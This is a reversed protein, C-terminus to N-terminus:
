TCCTHEHSVCHPPSNLGRLTPIRITVKYSLAGLHEMQGSYFRGVRLSGPGPRLCAAVQRGGPRGTPEGPPRNRMERMQARGCPRLEEPSPPSGGRTGPSRRTGPPHERPRPLRVVACILPSARGGHALALPVRSPPHPGWLTTFPASPARNHKKTM